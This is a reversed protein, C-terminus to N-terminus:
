FTNAFVDVNARTITLPQGLRLEQRGAHYWVMGIPGGVQYAGPRFRHGTVLYNAAWVGLYGLKIPNSAYVFEIAGSKVWAPLPSGFSGGGNGASFVKGIKHAATIAMAVAYAARPPIAVFGKLTPHTAMFHEVKSAEPEGNYDSGEVIGALHMNPYTKAVYKEVISQWENAIPFQGPQRAIAYDGRGDIQSALADALAEGYALPDSYSVWVARPGAIDDGNSLLPIGAARVATLIPRLQPEYADNIIADVHRAILSQYSTIDTYIYRAGLAKAAARGGRAMAQHYPSDTGDTAFAITYRKSAAGSSGGALVAAVSAAVALVLAALAITRRFM